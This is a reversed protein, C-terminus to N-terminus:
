CCGNSKNETKNEKNKANETPIEIELKPESTRNRIGAIGNKTDDKNM